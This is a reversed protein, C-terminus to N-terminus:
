PLALLHKFVFYTARADDLAHHKRNEPIKFYKCVEGLSFRKLSKKSFLRLYVMSMIDLRHYYFPDQRGLAFYARDLVAWDFNVNYGTLIGDKGFEDLKQLTEKIDLADKWRDQSYSTIKLADKSANKLNKPNVKVSLEAVIKFPRFSNVKLAGIEIIEHKQVELGTTELDLFILPRHRMTIKHADTKIDMTYFSNNALLQKQVM